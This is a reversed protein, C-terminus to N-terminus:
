DCVVRERDLFTRDGAAMSAAAPAMTTSADAGLGLEERALAADLSLGRADAAAALRNVVGILERVSQVPPDCVIDLVGKSDPGRDVLDGIFVIWRREFDRTRRLKDLVTLLQDVQGHVDGIVAVPGDIRAALRGM